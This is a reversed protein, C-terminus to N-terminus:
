GHYTQLWKDWRTDQALAVTPYYQTIRTINPPAMYLSVGCIRDFWAGLHRENLVFDGPKLRKQLAQAADRVDNNKSTDALVDCVSGIDWLHYAFKNPTRREKLTETERTKKQATWLNQREAKAHDLLAGALTDIAKAIAEVQSLDLAVQTVDGSNAPPRNAKYFAYFEEVILKSLAAGDMDADAQLKAMIPGYPWSTGPVLEESAAIYRVSDRLQYAVELSAMLCADMGLLDLPQQLFKSIRDTVKALELTDLSHQSGDDFCIARAEFTPQDLMTELTQRFLAPSATSSARLQAEGGGIGRSSGLQQVENPMWGTGHSWLVLGYREAPCQEFAWKAIDILKDANGSDFDKRSLAEAINLHPIYRTAGQATDYLMALQVDKGSSSQAADQLAELSWNGQMQLNNHAAIYVLIAWKAKAM